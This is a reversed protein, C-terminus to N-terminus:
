ASFILYAAASFPADDVADKLPGSFEGEVRKTTM